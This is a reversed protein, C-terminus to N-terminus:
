LKAACFYGGYLAKRGSDQHNTPKSGFCQAGGLTKGQLQNNELLSSMTPIKSVDMSSGLNSMNGFLNQFRAQDAIDLGRIRVEDLMEPIFNRLMLDGHMM